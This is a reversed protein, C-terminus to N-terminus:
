KYHPAKKAATLIRTAEAKTRAYGHLHGEKFDTKYEVVRYKGYKPDCDEIYFQNNM